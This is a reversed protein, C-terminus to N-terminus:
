WRFLDWLRNELYSSKYIWGRGECRVCKKYTPRSDGFFHKRVADYHATVGQGNCEPCRVKEKAM